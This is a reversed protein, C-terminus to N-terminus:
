GYFKAIAAALEKKTIFQYNTEMPSFILSTLIIQKHPLKELEKEVELFSTGHLDCLVLDFEYLKSKILETAYSILPIWVISVHDIGYQSHLETKLITTELAKDDIYLIRNHM